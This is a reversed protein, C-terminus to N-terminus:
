TPLRLLSGRRQGGVDDTDIEDHTDSGEDHYKRSPRMPRPIMERVKAAIAPMESGQHKFYGMTSKVCVAAFASALAAWQLPLLSKDFVVVSILVMLLKRSTTVLSTHLAGIVSIATYLFVQGLSSAISFTALLYVVQPFMWCFEILTRVEFLMLPLILLLAAENIHLMMEVSTIERSLALKDQRDATYGECVLAVLLLVNGFITSQIESRTDRPKAVNFVFISAAIWLVLFIQNMTYKQTKTFQAVMFVAVPKACKSLSQSPFDVLTLAHWGFFKALVFSFACLAVDRTMPGEWVLGWAAQLRQWRSHDKASMGLLVKMLPILKRWLSTPPESDGRSRGSFRVLVRALLCGSMTAGAMLTFTFHFSAVDNKTQYLKQQCVGQLIFFIYIGSICVVASVPTSLFQKQSSQAGAPRDDGNPTRQRVVEPHFQTSPDALSFSRQHAGCMRRMSSRDSLPSAVSSHQNTPSGSLSSASPSYSDLRPSQSQSSRISGDYLQFALETPPLCSPLVTIIEPGKDPAASSTHSDRM